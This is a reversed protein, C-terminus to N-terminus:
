LTKGAAIDALRQTVLKAEPSGAPANALFQEYHKRAQATNQRQYDIEGLHFYIISLKPAIELLKLYDKEALDLKGMKSYALARNVLAPFFDPQKNLVQTLTEISESHAGAQMQIASKTILTRPDGPLLQILKEVVSLAANTRNAAVYIDNLTQLPEAREPFQSHAENLLREAVEIHGSRYHAWSELATLDNKQAPTLEANRSRIEAALQLVAPYFHANLNANVLWFATELSKPQLELSRSLQQVAQRNLGGEAFIRGLKFCFMPEDVPGCLSLFTPLDRFRGLQDDLEKDLVIPDQKGARLNANYRQNIAASINDPNLELAAAFFRQAEELQGRRQLTVGWTNFGRSYHAGLQVADAVRHRRLRAILPDEVLQKRLSTWKQNTENFQETTLAPVIASNTPQPELRYLTQAPVLAFPEFFFGFSPHLYYATNTYTLAIVQRLVIEDSLPEPLREVALAPWRAGYVAERNLQYVHYRLLQTNVAVPATAKDQNPRETLVGRALVLLLNDDSILVSQATSAPVLMEAMQRVHPGNQGRITPWNRAALAGISALSAVAVLGAGFRSLAQIAESTKMLKREPEQGLVLILYGVMYGVSLACLFYFPLFPLGFGMQRPSFPPDFMTWGCFVFFAFHIARFLFNTVAAGAASMDAFTSPWRFSAILLPLVSTLSGFFAIYRPYLLIAERQQSLGTRLIEFFSGNAQGASRLVLPPILYMAAGALGALTTRTLFTAEFFRIGKAALIAIVFLPCFGIVGWDNAAAAGFAFSLYALYKDEQMVRFRLFCFVCFAFLTLTVMETTIATASEWFTLQVGLLGAAAVPPIWASPTTLFGFDSRERQRQERTRDHPLLAVSKALLGVTLAGLVASLLNLATPQLSPSLGRFPWTVLLTVPGLQLTNWDWGAVKAVTDASRFSVWPHLTVFYLVLAAASILWPLVFHVFRSHQRAAM